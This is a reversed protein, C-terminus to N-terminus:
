IKTREISSLIRSFSVMGRLCGAVASVGCGIAVCLDLKRKGGFYINERLMVSRQYSSRKFMGGM